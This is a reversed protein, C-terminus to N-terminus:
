GVRAASPAAALRRGRRRLLATVGALALSAGAPEPVSHAHPPLQAPTLVISEVGAKGGLAWNTTMGIGQGVGVPVRGRLDPLAFTTQGNGGYTNGGLVSFLTTNQNISMLQGDAFAWGAPAFDGAFLDIQGVWPENDPNPQGPFAGGLSIIYNLAFSPQLNDHPVSSGSAGTVDVLSPPLTHVHMPMTAETLTETEHGAISGLARNSLGPGQGAHMVARGRLSPLRFDTQGDGGYHNELISFLSVNQNIALQQGSAPLVNVPMQTGAFIKVQGLYPSSSAAGSSPFDGGVVIGYNLALSPQMTTHAAAAGSPGTAGGGDGPLAHTHAPLNDTTLTVTEAGVQQGLPRNTLGPGAGAAIATRGRLDPLAFHTQGNGGYAAGINAFLQENDHVPMLQGEAKAWGAPVTGAFLQVEGASPGFLNVAYHLGLSPQLNQVPAGAGAVGTTTAARVPASGGLMFLVAASAIVRHINQM